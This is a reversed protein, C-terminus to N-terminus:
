TQYDASLLSRRGEYVLLLEVCRSMDIILVTLAGQALCLRNSSAFVVVVRVWSQENVDVGGELIIKCVNEDYNWAAIEFPTHGSQVALNCHLCILHTLRSQVYM